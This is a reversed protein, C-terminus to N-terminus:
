VELFEKLEFKALKFQLKDRMRLKININKRECLMYIEDRLAIAYTLNKSPNLHYLITMYLRTDSVQRAYMMGLKFECIDVLFKILPVYQVFNYSLILVLYESFKDRQYKFINRLFEVTLLLPFEKFTEALYDTSIASKAGSAIIQRLNLSSFTDTETSFIFAENLKDVRGKEAYARCINTTFAIPNDLKGWLAEYYDQDFYVFYCANDRIASCSFVEQILKHTLILEKERYPFDRSLRLFLEKLVRLYLIDKKPTLEPYTQCAQWFLKLMQLFYKFQQNECTMNLLTMLSRGFHTLYAMTVEGFTSDFPYGDPAKLYTGSKVTFVDYSQPFEIFMKELLDYHDGNRCGNVILNPWYKLIKSNSSTMDVKDSSLIETDFENTITTNLGIKVSVHQLLDLNDYKATLFDLHSKMRTKLIRLITM